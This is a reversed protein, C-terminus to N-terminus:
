DHLEDLDAFFAAAAALSTM